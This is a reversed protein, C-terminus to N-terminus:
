GGGSGARTRLRPGIAFVSLQGASWTGVTVYKVALLSGVIGDVATNATLSGETLTPQTTVPTLMSLNVVKTGAATFHFNAIDWWHTGDDASTQVYADASTGGTGAFSCFLLLDSRIFDPAAIFQYITGRTASLATTVPLNLIQM